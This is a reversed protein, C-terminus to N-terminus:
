QSVDSHLAKLYHAFVQEFDADVESPIKQRSLPTQPDVTFHSSTDDLYLAFQSLLECEMNYARDCVEKYTDSAIVPVTMKKIVTGADTHKDIKHLTIGIPQRRVIAWKFSDLGRNEPILGPHCNFITNGEIFHQPIIKAIATVFYDPKNALTNLRESSAAGWCNMAHYHVGCTHCFAEVDLEILQFPREEFPRPQSPRYSFPFAFLSIEYGMTLFKQMLQYTMLHGTQYTFIGVHM